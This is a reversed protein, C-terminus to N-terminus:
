PTHSHRKNPKASDHLGKDFTSGQVISVTEKCTGLDVVAIRPMRVADTTIVKGTDGSTQRVSVDNKSSSTEPYNPPYPFTIKNCDTGILYISLM